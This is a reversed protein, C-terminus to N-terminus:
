VFFTRVSVYTRWERQRTPGKNARPTPLDQATEPADVTDIKTLPPADALPWPRVDAALGVSALIRKRNYSNSSVKLYEANKCLLLTLGTPCSWGPRVATSENPHPV